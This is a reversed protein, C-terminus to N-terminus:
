GLHSYRINDPKVDRHCLNHSAPHDLARLMQEVVQETLNDHTSLRNEDKGPKKLSGERLPM